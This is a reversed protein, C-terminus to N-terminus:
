FDIHWLNAYRDARHRIQESICSKKDLKPECWNPRIDSEDWYEQEAFIKVDDQACWVNESGESSFKQASLTSAM